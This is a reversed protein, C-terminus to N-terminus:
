DTVILSFNAVPRENPVGVFSADITYLGKYTPAIARFAYIIYSGSIPVTNTVEITNGVITASGWGKGGIDGVNTFEVPLRITLRGNSNIAGNGSAEQLSIYFATEQGRQTSVLFHPTPGQGLWLVSFPANRNVQRTPYEKSYVTNNATIRISVQFLEAAQNGRISVYFEQASHPQITMPTNLYVTNRGVSPVWGRTPFSLGSGQKIAGFVRSRVSRANFEVRTVQYIDSTPNWFVAGFFGFERSGMENPISGTVQVIKLGRYASLITQTIQTTEQSYVFAYVPLLMATGILLLVITAATRRRM